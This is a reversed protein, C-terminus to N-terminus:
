RIEMKSMNNYKRSLLVHGNRQYANAIETWLEARKKKSKCFDPRKKLLREMQRIEEIANNWHKQEIIAIVLNRRADFQLQDEPLPHINLVDRFSEEAQAWQGSEKAKMGRDYLEQQHSDEEDGSFEKLLERANQYRERPEFKLCRLIVEEINASITNNHDSPLRPRNRQKERFLWEDRRKGSLHAPPVLHNFPHIGTVMEYFIVGVSYVDSACHSEGYFMTEPAMYAATGAVGPVRGRAKAALGFDVIRVEDVKTLLINDPKLDRHIVPDRLEHMAALGTCIQKIYRLAMSEPMRNLRDGFGGMREKLSSGDIYEMVIFGRRNYDELIGMDYVRVLYRKADSDQIEDIVGALIIADAFIDRADGETINTAKTIKVAVRRVYQGLIRQEGLFVAGFSGEAIYRNLWYRNEIIKGQFFERLTM